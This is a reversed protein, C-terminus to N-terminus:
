GDHTALAQVRRAVENQIVSCLELMCILTKGVKPFGEVELHFHELHPVPDPRQMRDWCYLRVDNFVQLLLAIQDVELTIWMRGIDDTQWRLRLFWAARTHFHADRQRQLAAVVADDQSAMVDPRTDVPVCIQHHLRLAAMLPQFFPHLLIRYHSGQEIAKYRAVEILSMM